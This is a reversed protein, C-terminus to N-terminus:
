SEEDRSEIEGLARAAAERTEAEPHGGAMARLARVAEPDCEAVPPGVRGLAWIVGRLIPGTQALAEQHALSCLLPLFEDQLGPRMALMEGIAEPLGLPVAGSEPNLSWFYRRLLESAREDGLLDPRAALAGLAQVARWKEEPAASYLQGSLRRLLRSIGGAQGILAELEHPEM